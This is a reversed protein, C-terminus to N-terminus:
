PHDSAEILQHERSIGNYNISSKTIALSHALVNPSGKGKLEVLVDKGIKDETGVMKYGIDRFTDKYQNMTCYLDDEIRTYLLIEKINSDRHELLHMLISEMIKTNIRDCFVVLYVVSPFLSTVVDMKLWGDSLFLDNLFMNRETISHRFNFYVIFQFVFYYHILKAAYYFLKKLPKCHIFRHYTYLEHNVLAKVLTQMEIDCKIDSARTGFYYDLVRVAEITNELHIASSIHIINEFHLLANSVFIYEHEHPYDSLWAASFCTATMGSFRVVLGKNAAFLVAVEFDSTTSLPCHSNISVFNTFYLEEGIGHYFRYVNCYDDSKDNTDSM